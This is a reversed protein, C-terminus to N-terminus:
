GRLFHRLDSALRLMAEGAELWTPFCLRWDGQVPDPRLRWTLEVHGGSHFTAGLSLQASKWVREGDWGRFDAALKGVFDDLQVHDWVGLEVGHLQASLGDAEVNVCFGVVYEDPKYRERFTVGSGVTLEDAM